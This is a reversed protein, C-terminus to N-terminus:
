STPTLHRARRPQPVGSPVRAPIRRELEDAVARWCREAQRLQTSVDDPGVHGVSGQGDAADLADLGREIAQRSAWYNSRDREGAPTMVELAAAADDFLARVLAIAHPREGLSMQNAAVAVASVITSQALHEVIGRLADPRVQLQLLLAVTRGLVTEQRARTVRRREAVERAEHEARLADALAERERREAEARVATAHRAVLETSARVQRASEAQARLVLDTACQNMPAAYGSDSYGFLAVRHEEAYLVAVKTFGARSYFVAVTSGAAARLSEIETREVPNRQHEVRGSFDVGLLDLANDPQTQPELNVRVDLFALVSRAHREAFREADRWQPNKAVQNM